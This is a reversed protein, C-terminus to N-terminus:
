REPETRKRSEAKQPKGDDKGKPSDRGREMEMLKRYAFNIIVPHTNSYFDEYTINPMEVLAAHAKVEKFYRGDYPAKTIVAALLTKCRELGFEKVWTQLFPSLEGKAYWDHINKDFYALCEENRKKDGCWLHIEGSTKAEILNKRYLPAEPSKYYEEAQAILIKNSYQRIDQRLQDLYRTDKEQWENYIGSLPTEVKRLGELETDDLGFELMEVIDTKVAIEQANALIQEFPQGKLGEIFTDYERLARHYIEKKWDLNQGM